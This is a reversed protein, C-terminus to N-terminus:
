SKSRQALLASRVDRYTGGTTALENLLEAILWRLPPDSLGGFRRSARIALDEEPLFLLGPEYSPLAFGEIGLIERVEEWAQGAVERNSESHMIFGVSREREIVPPIVVIARRYWGESRLLRLERLISPTGGPIVFIARVAGAAGKVKQEWIEDPCRITWLRLWAEAVDRELAGVVMPIGSASLERALRTRFSAGPVRLPRGRKGAVMPLREEHGSTDSIIPKTESRLLLYCPPNQWRGQLKVWVEGAVAPVGYWAAASALITAMWIPVPAWSPLGWGEAVRREWNMVFVLGTGLVCLALLPVALRRVGSALEGLFEREPHESQARSSALASYLGSVWICSWLWNAGVVPVFLWWSPFIGWWIGRAAYEMLTAALVAAPVLLRREPNKRHAETLDAWIRAGHFATGLVILAAVIAVGALGHKAPSGVEPGVSLVVAPLVPLLSGSLYVLSLGIWGARSPGAPRPSPTPTSV